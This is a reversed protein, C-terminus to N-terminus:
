ASTGMLKRKVRRFQQLFKWGRSRYIEALTHQTERLETDRRHSEMDKHVNAQQLQECVQQLQAYATNTNAREQESNALLQELHFRQQLAETRLQETKALEKQTYGLLQEQQDLREAYWAGADRLRETPLRALWKAAVQSRWHRHHHLHQEDGRLNSRDRYRYIASLGEVHPFSTHESVQLWFDWDELVPLNEDFRCGNKSALSHEFLVSHIPFVNSFTLRAVSYPKDYRLIEDGAANIVQTDTHAARAMPESRLVQVLKEVHGPAILDDDDLFLCYKGTAAELAANAAQPRTLRTERSVWRTGIARVAQLYAPPQSEGHAAVVVLEIAPYTQACVSAIAQELAPDGVTRMLISVLPLDSPQVAQGRAHLFLPDLAPLLAPWGKGSLTIWQFGEAAAAGHGLTMARFHDRAAIRSRYPQAGEQSAFADLAQQKRELVPTIDVLHTCHVLLDGSEYFCLDVLHRSRALSWLVALATAQHDPHPEQLAPCFVIDCGSSAIQDALREILQPTCRIGRDPLNWFSVAHGLIGAALRSETQRDQSSGQVEGGTLVIVEAQVGHAAWLAMLGGCGFVEDDPHPALILPKRFQQLPLAKPFTQAEFQRDQM